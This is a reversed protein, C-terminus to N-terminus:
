FLCSVDGVYNYGGFIVQGRQQMRTRAFKKAPSQKSDKKSNTNVQNEKGRHDDPYAKKVNAVRDGDSSAWRMMSASPNAVASCNHSPCKDSCLDSPNERTRKSSSMYVAEQYLGQWFNVVQEELRVVEEELM